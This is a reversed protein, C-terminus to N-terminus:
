KKDSDKKLDLMLTTDKKGAAKKGSKRSAKTDSVTGTYRYRKFFARVPYWDRLRRESFGVVVLEKGDYGPINSWVLCTQAFDNHGYKGSKESIIEQRLEPSTFQIRHLADDSLDPYKDLVYTRAKKVAELNYNSVCGATYLCLTAVALFFSFHRM